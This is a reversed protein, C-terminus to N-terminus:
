RDPKRLRLVIDACKLVEERSVVKAGVHSYDDDSLFVTRGLGNEIVIEAGKQILKKAHEPLLSARLEGPFTERLVGIIM